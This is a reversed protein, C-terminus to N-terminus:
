HRRVEPDPDAAPEGALAPMLSLGEPLCRVSSACSSDRRTGAPTAPDDPRGPRHDVGRRRRCHRAPDRDRHLGRGARERRTRARLRSRTGAHVSEVLREPSVQRDAPLNRLYGGLLQDPVNGAALLARGMSTSAVPVRQGIASWVRIAREPEVKDVYLVHSAPSSASTFWNTPRGPSRSLRRICLGPGSQTPRLCSREFEFAAPGLRLLRQCRGPHRLRAPSPHEAGPLRHVQERRRQDALDALSAGRPGADALAMLLQLARDVAEM